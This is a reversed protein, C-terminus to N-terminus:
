IESGVTMRCIVQTQPPPGQTAPTFDFVLSLEEDRAHTQARSVRRPETDIVGLRGDWILRGAPTSHLAGAHTRGDITRLRYASGRISLSGYPAESAPLDPDRLRCAYDGAPALGQAGASAMRMAAPGLEPHPSRALAASPRDCAALLLAGAALALLAHSPQTM